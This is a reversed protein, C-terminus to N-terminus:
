GRRGLVTIAYHITKLTEGTRAVELDLLLRVSQDIPENDVLSVHQIGWHVNAVGSLSALGVSPLFQEPTFVMGASLFDAPLKIDVQLDRRYPPVDADENTWGPSHLDVDVLGSLMLLTRGDPLDYFLSHPSRFRDVQQPDLQSLHM